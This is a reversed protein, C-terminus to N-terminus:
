SKHVLAHNLALVFSAFDIFCSILKHCCAQGKHCIKSMNGQMTTVQRHSELSPLTASNLAESLRHSCQM